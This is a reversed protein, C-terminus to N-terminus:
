AVKADFSIRGLLVFFSFQCDLLRSPTLSHAWM